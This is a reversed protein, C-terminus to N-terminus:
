VGSVRVGRNLDRRALKMMAKERETPILEPSGMLSLPNGTLKRDKVAKVWETFAEPTLSSDDMDTLALHKEVMIADFLKVALVSAQGDKTHDSYGVLPAKCNKGLLDNLKSMRAVNAEGDAAPYDMTCALGILTENDEVDRVAAIAQTVENAVCGGFSIVIHQHAESAVKIIDLYNADGSAIKLYSVPMDDVAMFLRIADISFISAAFGMGRTWTYHALYRCHELPLDNAELKEKLPHGDECLGKLGWQIKVVDAGACAAADTLEIAKGLNGDHYVGIEAVIIPEKTQLAAEVLGDLKPQEGTHQGRLLGM